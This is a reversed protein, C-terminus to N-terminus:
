DAQPDRRGYSAADMEHWRTRLFRAAAKPRRDRTFAGKKNGDVRAFGYKTQFDAFNWMHEGVVAPFSDFVDSNMELYAVQYDETFMSNYISHQGAVTDAGYETIIIPKDYKETWGALEESFTQRATELDGGFVYWGYYRNLMLVDFLDSIQCKDYTASMFNVYGMPRTPDLERTLKALLEFYERSEPTRSEPENAISWLVVAPRNKDRAILRRIEEAHTKQTEESITEPSFTPRPDGDGLIGGAVGFNLGVAPTEDIVVIGHEDCYDMWEESYPYHATRLSNAGIWSLLEMDQVLHADSHGKGLTEHDEHMGFGTFYFPKGNILFEHGRVEVTRVGFPESYSDVVDAGDLLTIRLDYLGGIGPTWLNVSEITASGQAGTGTAVVQGDRRDVVEVQVQAKDADGAAADAVTIDWNVTGTTGEYGTTIVVDDVHRAPRSLLYVSRHLGSYNFFDHMYEQRERGDALTHVQGPPICTFDLRNDVAVSLRFEEGPTVLDTIDFEFPMYGGKHSGVETDNVFVRAHHTASGFRVIVRETFGRPVRVTRQYWWQGVHMRVAESAFIDNVSAPVPVQRTGELAKTYVGREVGDNNWDVAFDWIGDLSLVERTLTQSVRLM